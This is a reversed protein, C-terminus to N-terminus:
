VGTVSTHGRESGVALLVGFAGESVTSAPAGVAYEGARPKTSDAAAAAAAETVAENDAAGAGHQAVGASRHQQQQQQRQLSPPLPPPPWPYGGHLQQQPMAQWMRRAAEDAQAQAAHLAAAMGRLEREHGQLYSSRGGRMVVKWLTICRCAEGPALVLRCTARRAEVLQWSHRRGVLRGVM